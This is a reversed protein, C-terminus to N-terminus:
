YKVWTNISVNVYVKERFDGTGIYSAIWGYITDGGNIRIGFDDGEAVQGTENGAARVLLHYPLAYATDDAQRADSDYLGFHYDEPIPKGLIQLIDGNWLKTGDANWGVWGQNPGYSHNSVRMRKLLNEGTGPPPTLALLETYADTKDYARIECQYAVGRFDAHVFTLGNLLTTSGTTGSAGIIGAVATAHSSDPGPLSTDGFTVRGILENHTNLPVHNEWMGCIQRTTVNNILGYGTVYSGLSPDSWLPMVNASTNSIIGYDYQIVPAEGEVDTVVGGRFYDRKHSTRKSWAEVRAHAAEQSMAIRTRIGANAIYEQALMEAHTAPKGALTVDTPRMAEIVDQRRQEPSKKPDPENKNRPDSWDKEEDADTLGDGDTDNGAVVPDFFGFHVRWLLEIGGEDLVVESVPGGPRDPKSQILFPEGPQGSEDARTLNGSALFGLTLCGVWLAASHPPTRRLAASHM